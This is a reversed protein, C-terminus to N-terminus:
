LGRLLLSKNHRIRKERNYIAIGIDLTRNKLEKEIMSGEILRLVIEKVTKYSDVDGIMTVIDDNNVRPISYKSLENIVIAMQTNTM